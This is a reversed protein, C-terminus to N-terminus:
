MKITKMRKNKKRSIFYITHTNTYGYTHMDNEMM